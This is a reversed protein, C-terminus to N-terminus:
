PHELIYYSAITRAWAPSLNHDRILRDIVSSFDERNHKSSSILSNWDDWDRGTAARMMEKSYQTTSPAPATRSLKLM